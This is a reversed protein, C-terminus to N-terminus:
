ARLQRSHANENYSCSLYESAHTFALRAMSSFLSGKGAPKRSASLFFTGSAFHNIASVPRIRLPFLSWPTSSPLDFISFRPIFSRPHLISSLSIPLCVFCSRLLAAVDSAAVVYFSSLEQWFM